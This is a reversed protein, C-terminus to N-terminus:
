GAGKVRTVRVRIDGGDRGRWLRLGLGLGILEVGLNANSEFLGLTKVAEM